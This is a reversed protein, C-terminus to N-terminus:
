LMSNQQVSISLLNGIEHDKKAFLYKEPIEMNEAAPVGRLRTARVIGTQRVWEWASEQDRFPGYSVPFMTRSARNGLGSRYRLTHVYVDKM